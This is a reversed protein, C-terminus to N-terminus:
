AWYKTFITLFITKTKSELNSNKNIKSIRKSKYSCLSKISIVFNISKYNDQNKSIYKNKSNQLCKTFIISNFLNNDNLKKIQYYM